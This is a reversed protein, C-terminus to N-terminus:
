RTYLEARVASRASIHCLLTCPRRDIIIGTTTIGTTTIGTANSTGSVL